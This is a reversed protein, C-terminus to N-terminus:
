ATFFLELTKNAKIAHLGDRGLLPKIRSALIRIPKLTVVLHRLRELTQPAISVEYLEFLDNLLQNDQRCFRAASNLFLWIDRAQAEALTMVNLPNEELDILYIVDALITMDKLSPRGHCLGAQHLAILTNMAKNLLNIKEPQDVEHLYCLLQQGVDQTILCDDNIALVQPVPINKRELEKLRNAEDMLSKPGGETATAALIPLRLARAMFAQLRHWITRKSHPRRKLWAPQGQYDIREILPQNM